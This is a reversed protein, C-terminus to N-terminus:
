DFMLRASKTRLKAYNASLYMRRALRCAPPRM